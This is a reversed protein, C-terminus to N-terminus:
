SALGLLVLNDGSVHEALDFAKGSAAEVLGWVRGAMVPGYFPNVIELRHDGNSGDLRTPLGWGWLSLRAFEADVDLGGDIGLYYDRAYGRSIELLSREVEEGLEEVLIRMVATIGRTNDFIFRRGSRRETIM